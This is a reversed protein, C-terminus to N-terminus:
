CCCWGTAVNLIDCAAIASFVLFSGSSELLICIQPNTSHSPARAARVRRKGEWRGLSMHASKRQACCDLSQTADSGAFEPNHLWRNRSHLDAETEGNLNLNPPSPYDLSPLESVAAIEPNGCHPSILRCSALPSFLLPCSQAHQFLWSENVADQYGQSSTLTSALTLIPCFMFHVLISAWASANYFVLIMSQYVLITFPTNPYSM